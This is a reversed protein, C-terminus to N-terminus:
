RHPNAGYEKGCNGSCSGQNPATERPTASFEVPYFVDDDGKIFVGRETAVVIRGKFEVLGVINGLIGDGLTFSKPAKARHLEESLWAVNTVYDRVSRSLAQFSEVFTMSPQQHVQEFTLGGHWAKFWENFSPITTTHELPTLTM